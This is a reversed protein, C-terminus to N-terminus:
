QCHKSLDKSQFSKRIKEKTPIFGYHDEAEAKAREMNVKTHERKKLKKKMKREKIARYALSQTM